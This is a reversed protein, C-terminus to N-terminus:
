ESKRRTLRRKRRWGVGMNLKLVANKTLTYQLEGILSMKKACARIHRSAVDPHRRRPGVPLFAISSTRSGPLTGGRRECQLCAMAAVYPAISSPRIQMM